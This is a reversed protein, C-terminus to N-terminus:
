ECVMEAEPPVGGYENATVPPDTGGPSESFADPVRAPVGDEALLKAKVTCTFSALPAVALWANVRAIAGAAGGGSVIVM